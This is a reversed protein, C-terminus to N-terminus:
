SYFDKPRTKTQKNTHKNTQKLPETKKLFVSIILSVNGEPHVIDTINRWKPLQEIRHFQQREALSVKGSMAVDYEEYHGPPFPEIDVEHDGNGHALGMLGIFSKLFKLLFGIPLNM